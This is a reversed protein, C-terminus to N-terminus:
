IIHMETEWHIWLGLKQSDHESAHSLFENFKHLLGGLTSLVNKCARTLQTSQGKHILLQPSSPKPRLLRHLSSPGRSLTHLQPEFNTRSPVHAQLKLLLARKVVARM